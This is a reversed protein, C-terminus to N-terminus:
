SLPFGRSFYVEYGISKIRKPLSGDTHGLGIARRNSDAFPYSRHTKQKGLYEGSSEVEDIIMHFLDALLKINPTKPKGSIRGSKLYQILITEYRNLSM